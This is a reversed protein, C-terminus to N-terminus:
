KSDDERSKEEERQQRQRAEEEKRKWPIYLSFFAIAACLATIGVVVATEAGAQMMETWGWRWLSGAAIASIFGGCYASVSDVNKKLAYIKVAVVIVVYGAVIGILGTLM